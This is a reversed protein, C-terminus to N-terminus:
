GEEEEEALHNGEPIMKRHTVRTIRQNVRHMRTWISKLNITSLKTEGGNIQIKNPTGIPCKIELQLKWKQSHNPIWLNFDRTTYYVNFNRQHQLLARSKHNHPDFKFDIYFHIYSDCPKQQSM